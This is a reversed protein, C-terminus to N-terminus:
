GASPREETPMPVQRVFAELRAGRRGRNGRMAVRSELLARPSAPSPAQGIVTRALTNWPPDAYVAPALASATLRVFLVGPRQAFVSLLRAKDSAAESDLLNEPFCSKFVVIGNRQEEPLGRDHEDCSLVKGM